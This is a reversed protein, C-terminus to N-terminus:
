KIKVVKKHHLLCRYIAMVDGTENKCFIKPSGVTPKLQENDSESESGSISSMDDIKSNFEESDIPNKKRLYLKLNYRHWDDKFHKRFEADSQFSVCCVRCYMEEGLVPDSVTLPDTSLKKM